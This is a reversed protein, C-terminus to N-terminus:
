TVRPGIAVVFPLPVRGSSYQREVSGLEHVPTQTHASAARQIQHHMELAQVEFRRDIPQGQVNPLLGERSPRDHTDRWDGHSLSPEIVPQIVSLSVEGNTITDLIGTTFKRFERLHSPDKIFDPIEFRLEPRRRCERRTYASILSCDFRTQDKPRALRFTKLSSEEYAVSWRRDFEERNEFIRQQEELRATAVSVLRAIHTTMPCKTEHIFGLFLNAQHPEVPLGSRLIWPIVEFPNGIRARCSGYM